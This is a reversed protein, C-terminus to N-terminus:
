FSASLLVITADRMPHTSQFKILFMGLFLQALRMGCPIRPNFDRSIAVSFRAVATADRMPHTSQFLIFRCVQCNFFTADRMPHTSQFLTLKKCVAQKLLRMGCPIRPNFHIVSSSTSLSFLRMGCPIRPNFYLNGHLPPQSLKTADRMPHTSQFPFSFCLSLCVNTADRM